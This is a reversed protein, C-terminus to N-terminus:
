LIMLSLSEKMKVPQKPIKDIFYISVNFVNGWNKICLPNLVLTTFLFQYVCYNKDLSPVYIFSNQHLLPRNKQPFMKILILNTPSSLVQSLILLMSQSIILFAIHVLFSEFPQTRFGCEHRYGFHHKLSANDATLFDECTEM